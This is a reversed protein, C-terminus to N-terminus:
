YQKGTILNLRTQNMQKLWDVSHSMWTHNWPRNLHQIVMGDHDLGNPSTGLDLEMCRCEYLNNSLDTNNGDVHWKIFKEFRIM